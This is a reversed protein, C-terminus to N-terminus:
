WSYVCEIRQQKRPGNVSWRLVLQDDRVLLEAAYCDERCLHPLTSQWEGEGTQVLDLLHVPNDAGLRLHELRLLDGALTWRYVNHFRLDRGGEPRWEGQEHFTIVTDCAARVEVTGLGRGNCGAQGASSAVFLLSRVRRLRNWLREIATM